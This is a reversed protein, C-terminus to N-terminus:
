LSPGDNTSSTTVEETDAEEALLRAYSSALTPNAKRVIDIVSEQGSTRAFTDVKRPEVGDQYIDDVVKALEGLKKTFKENAFLQEYAIKGRTLATARFVPENAETVAQEKNVLLPSEELQKERIAANLISVIPVLLPKLQEVHENKVIPVVRNATKGAVKGTYVLDISDVGVSVTPTNERRQQERQRLSANQAEVKALRSQIRGSTKQPRGSTKKNSNRRPNSQQAYASMAAMQEQTPISTGIPTNPEPSNNM